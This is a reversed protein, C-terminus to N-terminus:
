KKHVVALIAGRNQNHIFYKYWETVCDTRYITSNLPMIQVIFMVTSSEIDVTMRGYNRLQISKNSEDMFVINSCFYIIKHNCKAVM